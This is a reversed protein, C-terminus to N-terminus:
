SGGLQASVGGASSPALQAPDNCCQETVLEM